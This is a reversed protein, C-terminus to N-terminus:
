WCSYRSDRIDLSQFVTMMCLKSCQLTRVNCVYVSVRQGNMVFVPLGVKVGVVASVLVVVSLLLLLMVEITATPHVDQCQGDSM